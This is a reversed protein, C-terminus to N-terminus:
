AQWIEKGKQQIAVILIGVKRLYKVMYCTLVTSPVCHTILLHESIKNNQYDLSPISLSKTFPLIAFIKCKVPWITEKSVVQSQSQLTSAAM